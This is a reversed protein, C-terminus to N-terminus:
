SDSWEPETASGLYALIARVRVDDGPRVDPVLKRYANSLDKRVRDHSLDLRTAIATASLGSAALGMVAQERATLAAIDAEAPPEVGEHAADHSFGAATSRILAVLQGIDMDARKPFFSWGMRMEPPVRRELYALPHQSYIVIGLNDNLGRLAVGLDLGNMQDRGLALDILAVDALRVADSALAEGASDTSLLLDIDPHRSLAASIMGRLAPDNEIYVARTARM